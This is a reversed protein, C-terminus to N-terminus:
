KPRSTIWKWNNGTKIKGIADKTVNFLNGIQRYNMKGLSLLLKIKLVKKLTLKAAHNKSGLRIGTRGKLAMDRM